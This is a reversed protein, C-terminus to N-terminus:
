KGFVAALNKAFPPKIVGRDTIIASIRKAPTVDFAPNFVDIGAPAMPQRFWLETVESPDRNEVVIDSGSACALDITSGPAAM